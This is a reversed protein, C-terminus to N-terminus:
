VLFLSFNSLILPHLYTDIPFFRPLCPLIINSYWLHYKEGVIILCPIEQEVEPSIGTINHEYIIRRGGKISKFCNQLVTSMKEPPLAFIFLVEQKESFEKYFYSYFFLM